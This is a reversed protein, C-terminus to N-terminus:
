AVEATLQQLSEDKALARETEPPLKLFWTLVAAVVDLAAFIIVV